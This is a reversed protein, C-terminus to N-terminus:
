DALYKQRFEEHTMSQGPPRTRRLVNQMEPNKEVQRAYEHSDRLAKKRRKQDATLHEATKAM